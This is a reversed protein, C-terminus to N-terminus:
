NLACNFSWTTRMEYEIEAEKLTAWDICTKAVAVGIATHTASHKLCFHKQILHSPFIKYAKETQHPLQIAEIAFNVYSLCHGPCKVMTVPM